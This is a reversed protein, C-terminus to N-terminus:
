INIRLLRLFSDMVIVLSVVPLYLINCRECGCACTESLRLTEVQYKSYRVGCLLSGLPVCFGQLGLERNDSGVSELTILHAGSAVRVIFIFERFILM